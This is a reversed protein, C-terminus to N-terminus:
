YVQLCSTPLTPGNNPGGSNPPVNSTIASLNACSARELDVYCNQVASSNPGIINTQEAKTLEAMTSLSAATPVGFYAPLGADSNVYTVCDSNQITSDCTVVAQCIVAVLRESVTSNSAYVQSCTAPLNNPGPGNPQATPSSLASTLGALDSCPLSQVGSSCSQGATPNAAITGKAEAGALQNMTSINLAAPVGFDAPLGPDSNLYNLCASTQISADCSVVQRCILAVLETSTIANGTHTGNATSGAVTNGGNVTRVCSVSLTSLWLTLTLTLVLRSSFPRNM